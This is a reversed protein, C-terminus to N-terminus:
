RCKKIEKFMKTKEQINALHYMEQLCGTGKFLDEAQADFLNKLHLEFRNIKRYSNQCDQLRAFNKNKYGEPAKDM